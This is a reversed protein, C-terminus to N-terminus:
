GSLEAARRALGGWLRGEGTSAEEAQRQLDWVRDLLAAAAASHAEAEDLAATREAEGQRAVELSDTMAATYQDAYAQLVGRAEELREALYTRVYHRVARVSNQTTNDIIGVFYRRIAELDPSYSVREVRVPGTREECVPEWWEQAPTCLGPGRQRKVFVPVATTAEREEVTVRRQIGRELLEQLSCHFDEASPTKLRMDVPELQCHLTLSVEAEVAASLEAIRANIAAFLQRQRANTSQELSGWFDRVEAEVQQYILSHLECLTMQLREQADAGGDEGGGLGLLGKAKAWVAPWRGRPAAVPPREPSLAESIHGELRTCLRGMRERVEDVVLGELEAVEGRVGEFADLTEALRGRLAQVQAQLEAVGRHLAAASARTLNHVQALLREHDDLLAVLHLVAARGGLFAMVGAELEPLGCGALMEEATERFLQPDNVREWRRGFAARRFLDLEEREARGGLVLRSLLAEKASIAFVQEPLLEFGPLGLQETIMAAVYARTEEAGMGECSDAVDMKNVVFFIRRSIRRILQPNLEHLRQLMAAEDSSKLKTYDLLYLVADVGELLREVKHRLQAQGAENPGPTDLLAVRPHLQGEGAAAESAAALAAIPAEIVLAAEEPAAAGGGPSGASGGANSNRAAANLQRLHERVLPVGEVQVRGGGPIPYSLLPLTRAPAHQLRVIRATETVNSSPLVKDGLLANLLTSKGAKITALVAVTCDEEQLRQQLEASRRFLSPLAADRERSGQSGVLDSLLGGTAALCESVAAGLEAPTMDAM